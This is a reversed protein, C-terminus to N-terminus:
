VTKEKKKTKKKKGGTSVPTEKPAVMLTLGEGEPLSLIEQVKSLYLENLAINYSKWIKSMPGYDKIELGYADKLLAVMAQKFNTDLFMEAGLRCHAFGKQFDEMTIEKSIVKKEVDM